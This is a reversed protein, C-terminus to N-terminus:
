LVSGEPPNPLQPKSLFRHGLGEAHAVRRASPRAEVRISLAELAPFDPLNFWATWGVPYIGCWRLCGSLYLELIDTTEPATREAIYADLLGLARPLTTNKPHVDQITRRLTNTDNADKGVYKEPYFNLRLLPHLTNATFFFWKLFDGREPTGSKPVLAQHVESLWMLIAGTEFLTDSPTELCPILGTPAKARYRPSEQAKSARDVLRAEYPLGLEELAMRIILSANDPAYHLVYTM